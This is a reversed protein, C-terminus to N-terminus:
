GEIAELGGASAGVGVVPFGLDNPNDGEVEAAVDCSVGDLVEEPCAPDIASEVKSGRNEVGKEPRPPDAETRSEENM